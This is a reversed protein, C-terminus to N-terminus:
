FGTLLLARGFVTDNGSRLRKAWPVVDSWLTGVVNRWLLAPSLPTAM